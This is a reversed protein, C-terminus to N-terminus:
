NLWINDPYIVEVLFLGYPPVQFKARSRDKNEILQIMEQITMKKYAIELLTGTIIRVMGRLFRDAKIHFFLMSDKQEWYAEKIECVHTKVDTGVKSFAEYDRKGILIESAKNLLNIDPTKYLRLFTDRMFPSKTLTIQYRYKRSLADFRANADERVQRINKILIDDPLFSNIRHLFHQKEITQPTDFQVFQQECHVGTDTRGSALTTIDHGLLKSLCDDVIAQVSIANPQLQWGHYNAGHYAIELFYKM